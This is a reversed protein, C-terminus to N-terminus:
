RRTGACWSTLVAQRPETDRQLWRGCSGGDRRPLFAFFFFAPAPGLLATPHHPLAPLAASGRPLYTRLGPPAERVFKAGSASGGLSPVSATDPRRLDRPLIRSPPVCPAAAPGAQSRSGDGEPPAEPKLHSDAPKTRAQIDRPPINRTILIKPHAEHLLQPQKRQLTGSVFDGPFLCFKM